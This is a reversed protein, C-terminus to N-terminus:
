LTLCQRLVFCFCLFWSGRRFGETGCVPVSALPCYVSPQLWTVPQITAEPRYLLLILITSKPCNKIGMKTPTRWGQM